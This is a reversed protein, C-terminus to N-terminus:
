GRRHDVPFGGLQALLSLSDTVSWREVCKQDEFRLITMGPIRVSRGTAEIGLFPQTHTGVMTFRLIVKDDTEILDEAIVRADPFVSWVGTYYRRVSDLGPEVGSYGHLIVKESYVDFYRERRQPDAFCELAGEVIDRNSMVSIISGAEAARWISPKLALQRSVGM